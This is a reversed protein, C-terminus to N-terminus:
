KLVNKFKNQIVAKLGIFGYLLSFKWSLSSNYSLDEQLSILGKLNVTRETRLDYLFISNGEIGCIINVEHPRMKLGFMDIVDYNLKKRTLIYRKGDNSFKTGYLDVCLNENNINQPLFEALGKYEFFVDYKIGEDLPILKYTKPGKLLPVQYRNNSRKVHEGVDSANSSLSVYPYVFYKNTEVLYKMYYKKWSSEPWNYISRPMDTTEILESDNSKYWERFSKWMAHGWCQGWSQASQIFYVDSHNTIPTFPKGSMENITPSYLSIGAIRSDQSYYALAEKSYGYFNQAAIIDDEFLVVAEYESTLDGCQLIHERLGQREAFTRIKKEGHIWNFNNAIQVLENEIDSKDISIILDVEDQYYYASEISKLLRQLSNPRNYTVAVIAIKSMM